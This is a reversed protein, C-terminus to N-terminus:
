KQIPFHHGGFAENADIPILVLLFSSENESPNEWSHSLHAEFVLSDGPFLKYDCDSVKYLISGTLCYVFEYGTHVIEKEGSKLGGAMKVVFPQVMNNSLNKGLNQFVIQDFAIQQGQQHPTFVVNQSVPESEFFATIPLSLAHALSQLTSVSPSCKDNEILSLTNINLGSKESVQRLSLDAKNRLFRAKEGLSMGQHEIIETAEEVM